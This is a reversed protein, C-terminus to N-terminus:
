ICRRGGNPRCDAGHKKERNKKREDCHPDIGSGRSGCTGNGDNIGDVDYRKQDEYEEVRVSRVKGQDNLYGSGTIPEMEESITMSIKAKFKQETEIKQERRKLRGATLISISLISIGLFLLMASILVELLVYGKRRM